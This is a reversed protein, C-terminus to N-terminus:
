SGNIGTCTGTGNNNFASTSSLALTAVDSLWNAPISAFGNANLITNATPSTYHFSLYSIIAPLPNGFGTAPTSNYCQYFDFWTFGSIAYAGQSLPNPVVGQESWNLPNTLGATTFSANAAAMATTANAATPPEFTGTSNDIDYQNQLNAAAPGSFKVPQVFDPSVYGIAGNTSLVTNAVGGSGSKGVFHGGGPNPIANGCQDNVLDPWNVTNAGRYPLAPCQSTAVTNDSWPMQYLALTANTESTPGVVGVCQEALANTTLFTTGSSDSRHVVTINGTGLAVGNNLATLIANNWQTIHGSVIGCVAQRSLNLGSSGGTPTANQINLAVGNGDKGNFPITVDVIMAPIELIAGFATNGNQGHLNAGYTAVDSPKLVDDSGAFYFEPYGYATLYTSTFPVSNSAAPTGLGITGSTSGDHNVFARKGGGSGVPAYLIQAALGGVDGSTLSCGTPVTDGTIPVGWCDFLQRYVSSALTGGGGYVAQANADSFATFCAALALASTMSAHKLNRM